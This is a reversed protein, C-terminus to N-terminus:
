DVCKAIDPKKIQKIKRKLKKDKSLEEQFRRSSQSLASEGIVFCRGVENLRLGSYRHCLYLVTKRWETSDGGFVEKAKVEVEEISSGSILERLAPIDRGVERNGLYKDKIM